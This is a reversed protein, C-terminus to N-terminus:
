PGTFLVQLYYNNIILNLSFWFIFVCRPSPVCRSGKQDEDRGRERGNEWIGGNGSMKIKYTFDLSTICQNTVLFSLYFFIFVRVVPGFSVDNPGTKGYEVM